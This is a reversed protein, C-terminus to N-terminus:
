ALFKLLRNPSNGRRGLRVEGPYHIQRMALAPAVGDRSVPAKGSGSLQLVLPHYSLTLRKSSLM